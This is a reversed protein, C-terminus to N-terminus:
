RVRDVGSSRKGTGFLRHSGFLGSKITVRDGVELYLSPSPSKEAWVQGNDLTFIREGNRRVEIATISAGLEKVEEVPQAPEAPTDLGFRAEAAPAPEAPPAQAPAARAAIPESPEPMAPQQGPPPEAAEERLAADYCELRQADSELEACRRLDAAEGAAAPAAALAALLGPILLYPTRM